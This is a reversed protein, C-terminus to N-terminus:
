DGAVVGFQGLTFVVEAMVTSTALFVFAPMLAAMLAVITAVATPVSRYRVLHLYTLAM